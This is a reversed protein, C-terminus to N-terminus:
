NSSSDSILVGVGNPVASKGRVDTGILNGLVENEVAGVDLAVGAGPFGATGSIVNRDAPTSGGITNGSALNTIRVGRDRAAAEVPPPQIVYTKDLADSLEYGVCDGDATRLVWPHSLWTPQAYSAGNALTTYLVEEGDYDLWLVRVTEGSQNTFTISSPTVGETSRAQTIQCHQNAGILNGAVVNGNSLVGSISIGTEFGGNILIGRITSDSTQLALAANAGDYALDPWNLVVQLMGNFARASTNEVSGPQTYGDITVPETIAPLPTEVEIVHPGEGPIAFAITDADVPADDNADIIAQRLSGPGSDNTNTVLIDDPDIGGAAITLDAYTAPATPFGAPYTFPQLLAFDHYLLKIGAVEGPTLCIDSSEEATCLRHAVEFVVRDNDPNFRQEWRTDDVGDASWTEGNYFWDGGGGVTGDAVWLDEGVDLTGSHDDDFYLSFSRGGGPDTYELAAYLYGGDNMVYATAGNPDDPFPVATAASWEGPSLFGDLDPPEAALQSVVSVDAHAAATPVAIGGAAVAVALAIFAYRRM